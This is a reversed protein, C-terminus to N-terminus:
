RIEAKKVRFSRYEEAVIGYGFKGLKEIVIDQIDEVSPIKDKYKENLTAVVSDSISSAISLDEMRAAILSKRIADTIKEQIFDVLRGDRKRVRTIGM